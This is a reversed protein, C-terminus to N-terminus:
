SEAIPNAETEAVKRAEMYTEKEVRKSANLFVFLVSYCTKSAPCTWNSLGTAMGVARDSVCGVEM